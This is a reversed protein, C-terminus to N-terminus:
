SIRLWSSRSYSVLGSNPSPCSAISCSSCFRRLIGCNIGSFKVGFNYTCNPTCSLTFALKSYITTCGAL